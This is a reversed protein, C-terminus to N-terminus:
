LFQTHTSLWLAPLSPHSTPLRLLRRPFCFTQAGLVQAAVGHGELPVAPSPPRRPARAPQSCRVSLLPTNAGPQKPQRLGPGAQRSGHSCPPLLCHFSPFPSVCLSATDTLQCNVSLLPGSTTYCILFASMNTWLCLSRKNSICPICTSVSGGM